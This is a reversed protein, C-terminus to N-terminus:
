AHPIETHRPDTLNAYLEALATWILEQRFHAVSRERAARGWRRGSDPDTLFRELGAVLASASRPEVLLGTVENVVADVCGPVRTAITPRELAAAELVVNPFGEGYSPLVLCDMAAYAARPDSMFGLLHVRRDQGLTALTDVLSPDREVPSLLLLHARRYKRRLLAWSDGLAAIGKDRDLRGVFGVVPDRPEVGLRDRLRAADARVDASLSFHATDIGNV